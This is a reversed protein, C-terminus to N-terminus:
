NKEYLVECDVSLFVCDWWFIFYSPFCNWLFRLKKKLVHHIWNLIQTSIYFVLSLFFVESFSTYPLVCERSFIKIKKAMSCPLHSRLKWVLSWGVGGASSACLRVCQVELSTRVKAEQILWILLPSRQSIENNDRARRM